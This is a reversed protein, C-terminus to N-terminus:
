LEKSNRCNFGLSAEGDRGRGESEQEGEFEVSVRM